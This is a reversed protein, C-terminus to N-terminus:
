QHQFAPSCNVMVIPLRMGAAVYHMEHMLMLGQSSSATFTRAGTAESAIAASLVSHESDMKVFEGDWEGDAKWQAITEIIETQPTIPFCPIVQVRSLRAGWAAATNGDMLTQKETM